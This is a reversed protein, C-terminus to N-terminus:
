QLDRKGLDVSGVLVMFVGEFFNGGVGWSNNVELMDQSPLPSRCGKHARGEKWSLIDTFVTEHPDRTLLRAASELIAVTM